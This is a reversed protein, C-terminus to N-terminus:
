DSYNISGTVQNITGNNLSHDYIFRVDAQNIIKDKRINAAKFMYALTEDNSWSTTGLNEASASSVDSSDIIADGDLDGFIVIYFTEVLENTVNDYVKVVSGTGVVTNIGPKIPTVVIRGDGLVDVYSQELETKTIREKLGYIFWNNYNGATAPEVRDPTVSNDSLQEIAGDREVVTTSGTKPVLKVTVREFKAYIDFDEDPMKIGAKVSNGDKDVWGKFVFHEIEPNTAPFVITEGAVLDDEAYAYKFTDETIDTHEDVDYSYFTVKHEASGWVAVFSEGGVGVKGYNTVVTDPTTSKAWGLFTFGDRTPNTSPATIAEEYPLESSAVSGGDAFTGKGADFSVTYTEKEWKANFIMDKAPMTDPIEPSWGLFVYGERDPDQPEDIEAGFETPITDHLTGESYFKADYTKPTWTATYTVTAATNLFASVDPSWGTFEYGEYTPAAPIAIRDDFKTPVTKKVTGDAFKGGNADFIVDYTNPVVAFYLKLGGVPVTAGEELPTKLTPDTYAASMAYGEPVKYAPPTATVVSGYESNLSSVYEFGNKGQVSVYYRIEYSHTSYVAYYTTDEMPYVDPLGTVKEYTPDTTWGAFYHGEKDAATVAEFEDGGVVTKTTTGDADIFTMKSNGVWYAKLSIDEYGLAEPLAIIDDETPDAVSADVWGALTSGPKSVEPILSADVADGIDAVIGADAPYVFTTDDNDFTGGNADLTITSYTSVSHTDDVVINATFQSLAINNRVDGGDSSLPINCYALQRDMTQVTEEVMFFNGTGSADESVTLDFEMFWKDGSLKTGTAPNFIYNVTYVTHNDVFDKTIYNNSVMNQLSTSREYTIKSWMGTSGTVVASSDADTNFVVPTQVHYAVSDTFFDNDYFLMIGGSNTFYNTDIYVRAKVQEGPKVRETYIWKSTTEDYRFIETKFSVKEDGSIREDWLAVYETDQAPFQSITVIDVTGKVAWGRFNANVKTPTPATLADGVEGGVEYTASSDDIKGGNANFTVNIYNEYLSVSKKEFNLEATWNAMDVADGVAKDRQVKSVSIKGLTFAESRATSEVAFLSGTSGAAADAKVTLDFECFWQTAKFRQNTLGSTFGYSVMFFNHSNLFSEDIKGADYMDQAATSASKSGYVKGNASYTETNVTLATATSPYSDEFFDKNYFFLLDGNGVYYSSTIYVRAKVVEGRKVTETEQWEGNIYRLYKTTITLKKGDDTNANWASALVSVSAFVMLFALAIAALKKIKTM